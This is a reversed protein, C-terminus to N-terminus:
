GGSDYCETDAVTNVSGSVLIQNTDEKFYYQIKDPFDAM